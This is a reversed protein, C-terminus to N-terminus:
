NLYASNLHSQVDLLTNFYKVEQLSHEPSRLTQIVINHPPLSCLSGPSEGSKFVISLCMEFETRRLIVM